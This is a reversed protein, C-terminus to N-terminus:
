SLRYVEVGEFRVSNGTGVKGGQCALALLSDNEPSVVITQKESSFDLRYSMTGYVKLADPDFSESEADMLKLMPKGLLSSKDKFLSTSEVSDVTVIYLGGAELKAVSACTADITGEDASGIVYSDFSGLEVEDLSVIDGSVQAPASSAVEAAQVTGLDAADAESFQTRQKVGAAAMQVRYGDATVGWYNGDTGLFVSAVAVSGSPLAKTVQTGDASYLVIEQSSTMIGTTYHKQTAGCDRCVWEESESLKLTDGESAVFNHAVVDPEKEYGCICPEYTVIHATDTVNLISAIKNKHELTSPDPYDPAAYGLIYYDNGILGRENTTNFVHTAVAGGSTNGERTTVTTETAATVIGVHSATGGPSTSYFILDGVHPTYETTFDQWRNQSKYYSVLAPCGPYNPIVSTSLGLARACYMVFYACWPEGSGYNYKNKDGGEPVGDPEALAVKAFLSGNISGEIVVETTPEGFSDNPTAAKPDQLTTTSDSKKSATNEAATNTTTTNTNSTSPITHTNSAAGTNGQTKGTTENSTTNETASNTATAETATTNNAAEGSSVQALAPM